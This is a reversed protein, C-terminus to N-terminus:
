LYHKKAIFNNLFLWRLQIESVDLPLDLSHHIMAVYREKDQHREEKAVDTTDQYVM